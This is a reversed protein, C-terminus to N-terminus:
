SIKKIGNNTFNYAIKDLMKSVEDFGKTLDLTKVYMKNVGIMGEHNPVIDEDTKAYLLMGNVNGTNDKDKNKIYAFIQYLNGSIFSKTNYRTNLQMTKDYFKTDIILIKGEYELTIDTKMDPLFEIMNGEKINWDIHMARANLMPFHKRYYERVFKEYLASMQQDNVFTMFKKSGNEETLLLGQMTLYCVNMIMKYIRNNRSYKLSSWNINKTNLSDIDKFYILIKKIDIKYKKNLQNSEILLIMTTKIIKNMYSNTSFEDYECVMKHQIITNQKISDTIKIKGKLNAIIDSCIIYEKNLGKKLQYNIGKTLISAFLDYINDFEETKIKEISKEILMNFAYSLMWYVNKINVM